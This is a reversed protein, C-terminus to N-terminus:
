IETTVSSKKKKKGVTSRKENSHKSWSPLSFDPGKSDVADGFILLV